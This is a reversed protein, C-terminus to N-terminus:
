GLANHSQLLPYMRKDFFIINVLKTHRSLLVDFSNQPQVSHAKRVIVFPANKNETVLLEIIQKEM